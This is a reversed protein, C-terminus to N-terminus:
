AAPQSDLFGILAAALQDPAEEAMHHGSPIAIGRLHREWSRWVALVDSYLEEMDDASSWGVLTPCALYESASWKTPRSAVRALPRRM